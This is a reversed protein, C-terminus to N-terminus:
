LIAFIREMRIGLRRRQRQQRNGAAAAAWAKGAAADVSCRRSHRGFCGGVDGLHSKYFERMYVSKRATRSHRASNTKTLETM